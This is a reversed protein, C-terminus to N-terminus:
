DVTVEKGYPGGDASWVFGLIFEAKRVSSECPRLARLGALVAVGQKYGSSERGKRM